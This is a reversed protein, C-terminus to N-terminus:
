VNYTFGVDMSTQSEKDARIWITMDTVEKKAFEEAYKEANENIMYAAHLLADKAIKKYEEKYDEMNITKAM